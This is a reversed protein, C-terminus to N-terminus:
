TCMACGGELAILRMETLKKTTPLIGINRRNFGHFVALTVFGISQACRIRHCLVGFVNADDNPSFVTWVEHASAAPDIGQVVSCCRRRKPHMTHMGSALIALLCVYLLTLLLYLMVAIYFKTFVNVFCTNVAVAYRSRETDM